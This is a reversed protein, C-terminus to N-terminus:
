ANSKQRKEERQGKAEKDRLGRRRRRKGSAVGGSGENRIDRGHARGVFGGGGLFEGADGDGGLGVHVEVAADDAVGEDKGVAGLFGEAEDAGAGVVKIGLGGLAHFDDGAGAADFEVVFFGGGVVGGAGGEVDGAM